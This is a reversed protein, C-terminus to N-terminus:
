FCRKLFLAILRDIGVIDPRPLNGRTELYPFVWALGEVDVSGPLFPGRAPGWQFCHCPPGFFGFLAQTSRVVVMCMHIYIYISM